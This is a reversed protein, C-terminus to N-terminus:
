FREKPTNLVFKIPMGDLLKKDTDEVWDRVSKSIQIQDFYQDIMDLHQCPTPHRDITSTLKYRSDNNVTNLFDEIESQIVPTCHKFNGIQIDALSPWDKGKLINYLEGSYKIFEDNLVKTYKKDNYNFKVKIIKDITNRYIKGIKDNTSYENWTMPIYICKKNELFGQIASFYAYSHIEYGDPCCVNPEDDIFVNVKHLWKFKQYVDIRALGSWMVMVTDNQNFTNRADCEIISNFIAHNGSGPLGWNEFYDWERGLIDAWTPYHYKTMSCGFTFLRGKTNM